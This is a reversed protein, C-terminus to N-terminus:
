KGELEAVRRELAEIRQLLSQLTLPAPRDNVPADFAKRVDAQSEQVSARGPAPRRYADIAGPSMGGNGPGPTLGFQEREEHITGDYRPDDDVVSRREARRQAELEKRRAKAMDTHEDTPFDSM